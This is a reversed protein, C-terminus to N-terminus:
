AGGKNRCGIEEETYESLDFDNDDDSDEDDFPDAELQGMRDGGNLKFNALKADVSDLPDGNADKAKGGESPSAKSAITSMGFQGGALGSLLPNPGSSSGSGRRSGANSGRRSSGASSSARRVKVANGFEDAEKLIRKEFQM